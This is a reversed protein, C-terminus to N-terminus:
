IAETDEVILHATYSTDSTGNVPQLLHQAATASDSPQDPSKNTSDFRLRFLLQLQQVSPPCLCPRLSSVFCNYLVGLWDALNRAAQPETARNAPTLTLTIHAVWSFM